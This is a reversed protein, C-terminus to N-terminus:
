MAAEEAVPSISAATRFPTRRRTRASVFPANLSRNWRIASAVPRSASTRSTPQPPTWVGPRTSCASRPSPWSAPVTTWQPAGPAQVHDHRARLLAERERRAERERDDLLLDQLPGLRLRVPTEVEVEQLVLLVDPLVLRRRRRRNRQDIGQGFLDAADLRLADL